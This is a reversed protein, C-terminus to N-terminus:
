FIGHFSSFMGVIGLLGYVAFDELHWLPSALTKRGEVIAESKREAVARYRLIWSLVSFLIIPYFVALALSVAVGGLAIGRLCVQAKRHSMRVVEHARTGDDVIHLFELYFAFWLVLATVAWQYGNPEGALLLAQLYLGFLGIPPAFVNIVRRSKLRVPPISYLAGAVISVAFVFYAHPAPWVRWLVALVAGLAIVPAIGYQLFSLRKETAYNDEGLLKGDYYDNFFSAAALFFVVALADLAFAAPLFVGSVAYGFCAYLM